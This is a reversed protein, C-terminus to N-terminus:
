VVEEALEEAKKRNDYPVMQGHRLFGVEAGVFDGSGTLFRKSRECWLGRTYRVRDGTWLVVIEPYLKHEDLTVTATINNGGFGRLTNRARLVADPAEYM